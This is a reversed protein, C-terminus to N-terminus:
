LDIARGIPVAGSEVLRVLDPDPGGANWPLDEPKLDRYVADWGGRGGVRSQIPDTPDPTKKPM